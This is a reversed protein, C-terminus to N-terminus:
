AERRWRERAEDFDEGDEEWKFAPVLSAPDTLPRVGQEVILEALSKPHWFSEDVEVVTLVELTMIGPRGTATAECTGEVVVQKQRASDVLACQEPTFRIKTVKRAPSYIKATRKGYDIELLRGARQIRAPAAPAEASDPEEIM